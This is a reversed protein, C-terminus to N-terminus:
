ASAKALNSTAGCAEQRVERVVRGGALSQAYLTHMGEPTVAHLGIFQHDEPLAAVNVYHDGFGSLFRSDGQLKCGYKRLTGGVWLDEAWGVVNDRCIAEMANRSLTYGPGGVIYAGHHQMRFGMQDFKEFGSELLRGVYCFTDDDCKYLWSFGHDLAWRCIAQVKKPLGQYSDDVDLFIEDKLQEHSGRGYFVRYEVNAYDAVDNLWTSRAAQIRREQRDSHIWNAHMGYAYKHCYPIAVLLREGPKM